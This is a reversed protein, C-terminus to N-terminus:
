HECSGAIRNMGYVEYGWQDIDGSIGLSPRNSNQIANRVRFRTLSGLDITQNSMSLVNYEALVLIEWTM